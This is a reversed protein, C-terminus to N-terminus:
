SVAHSAFTNNTAVDNQSALFIHGSSAYEDYVGVSKLCPITQWRIKSSYTADGQVSTMHDEVIRLM